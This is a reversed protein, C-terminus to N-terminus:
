GSRRRLRAPRQFVALQRGLLDIDKGVQRPRRPPGILGGLKLVAQVFEGAHRQIQDVHAHAFRAVEAQAVQVKGLLDDRGATGHFDLGVNGAQADFAVASRVRDTSTRRCAASCDALLDMPEAPSECVTSKWSVDSLGPVCCPSTRIM